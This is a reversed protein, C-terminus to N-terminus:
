RGGAMITEIRNDNVSIVAAIISKAMESGRGSM